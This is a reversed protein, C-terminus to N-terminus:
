IQYLIPNSYKNLDKDLWLGEDARYIHFRLDIEQNVISLIIGFKRGKYKKVLDANLKEVFYMFGQYPIESISIRLENCGIEYGTWDKFFKLVQVFNIKNEDLKNTEDFIVCDKILKTSQVLNQSIGNLKVRDIEKRSKKLLRKMSDSMMIM